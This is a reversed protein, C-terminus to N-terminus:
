GHVGEFAGEEVRGDPYVIIPVTSGYELAEDLAEQSEDVRKEVYEVGQSDWTDAAQRLCSLISHHLHRSSDHCGELKRGIMDWNGVVTM